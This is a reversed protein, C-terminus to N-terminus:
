MLFQNNVDYYSGEAIAISSKDLERNISSDALLMAKALTPTEDKRVKTLIRNFKRQVMPSSVKFEISGQVITDILIDKARDVAAVREEYTLDGFTRM